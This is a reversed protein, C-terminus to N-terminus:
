MGKIRMSIVILGGMFDDVKRYSYSAGMAIFSDMSNPYYYLGAEAGFSLPSANEFGFKRSVCYEAFGSAYIEAYKAIGININAGAGVFTNTVSEDTFSDKEMFVDVNASLSLVSLKIIGLKGGMGKIQSESSFDLMINFDLFAPGFQINIPDSKAKNKEEKKEEKKTNTDKSSSQKADTESVAAVETAKKSVYDKLEPNIWDSPLGFIKAISALDPSITFAEVNKNVVASSAKAAIYDDYTKQISSFDVIDGYNSVLRGMTDVSKYTLSDTQNIREKKVVDKNNYNNKVSYDKFTVVYNGDNKTEVTFNFSVEYLHPFAAFFELWNKASDRYAKYANYNSMPPIKEGTWAEYPIKFYFSFTNNGITVYTTGYFFGADAFGEVISSVESYTSDLSFVKNNLEEVISMSYDNVKKIQEKYKNFVATAKQKCLNYIDKVRQDIEQKRSAEAEATPTGFYLEYDEYPRNNVESSIARKESSYENYIPRIDASLSQLLSDMTSRNGEIKNIYTSVTEADNNSVETVSTTDLQIQMMMAQASQELQTLRLKYNENNAAALEEQAKKNAEIQAMTEKLKAEGEKDLAGIEYRLKLDNVTIQKENYEKLLAARYEAEISVRNIGLVKQGVQSKPNLTLVVNRNKEYDDLTSILNLYLYQDVEGKNNQIQGYLTTASAYLDNLRAEYLTVSKAPITTTAYYTGDKQQVAEEKHGVLTFSTSEVSMSNMESSLNGKGDDFDSLIDLSSISTGFQKVLDNRSNTLAEDKTKGYGVGVVDAASLTGLAFFLLFVLCFLKTKRM